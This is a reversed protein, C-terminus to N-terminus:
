TWLKSTGRRATETDIAKVQVMDRMLKPGTTPKLAMTESVIMAIVEEYVMQIAVNIQRRQKPLGIGFSRKESPRGQPRRALRTANAHVAGSVTNTRYTCTGVKM